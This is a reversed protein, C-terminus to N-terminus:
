VDPSENIQKEMVLGLSRLKARLTNRSIGLIEAAEVQVTPIGGVQPMIYVCDIDAFPVDYRASAGATLLEPQFISRITSQVELQFQIVAARSAAYEARIRPDEATKRFWDAKEAHTLERTTAEAM